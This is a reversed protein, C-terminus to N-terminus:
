TARCPVEYANAGSNGSQDCTEKGMIGAILLGVDFLKKIFTCINNEGISDSCIHLCFSVSCNINQLPANAITPVVIATAIYATASAFQM